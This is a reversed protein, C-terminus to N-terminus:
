RPAGQESAREPAGRLPASFYREYLSALPAGLAVLDECLRHASQYRRSLIGLSCAAEVNEVYDDVFFARNPPVREASLIAEFFAAEPKAVGMLHSAYVRDFMAYQGLADHIAYHTAITNTGCVVRAGRARLERVIHETPADLRPKFLTAWYNEAPFVGARLSFRRWFATDDMEGRMFPQIDPDMARNLEAGDIGLRRAAEPRIDFDRCLVGGMDFIYLEIM